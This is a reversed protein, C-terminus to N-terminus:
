VPPGPKSKRHVKSAELTVEYNSDSDSLDDFEELSIVTLFDNYCIM